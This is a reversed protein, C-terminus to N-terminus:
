HNKVIVATHKRTHLALGQGIDLQKNPRLTKLAIVTKEVMHRDFSCGQMRFWTAVLEKQVIYPLTVFKTRVLERKNTIQVILKGILNDIEIYKETLESRIRLLKTLDSEHLLPRLSLRIYNRLYDQDANTSDERWELQHEQAYDLIWTKPKTLFPRVINKRSFGVLGRPSTGRLLNVLMTEVVDDQHHATVIAEAGMNQMVSYLFTYRAERADAESAGEGLEVRQSIYELGYSRALEEVFAADDKSDERIGHDFHAVIFSNHTRPQPNRSRHKSNQSVLYHLLVVSDVGGSVAIVYKSSSM